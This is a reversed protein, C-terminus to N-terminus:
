APHALDGLDVLAGGSPLPVLGGATAPGELPAAGVLAAVLETRGQGPAGTLALTRGDALEARLAEIGAGTAASVARVPVVAGGEALAEGVVRVADETEQQTLTETRTLLVLRHEPVGGPGVLAVLRRAVDLEGSRDGSRASVVLAVRDVHACRLTSRPCGPAAPRPVVASRPLLRELTVREDTWTRLVAWDGPCPAEDPDAAMRVLLGGGIGVRHPGHDTLVTVLGGETRVVRAIEADASAAWRAMQPQYGITELM